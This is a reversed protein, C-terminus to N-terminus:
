RSLDVGSNETSNIAETEFSTPIPTGQFDFVQMESVSGNATIRLRASAFLGTRTRLALHLERIVGRQLPSLTEIWSNTYPIILELAADFTVHKSVTITGSALFGSSTLPRFSQITIM